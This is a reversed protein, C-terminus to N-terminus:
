LLFKGKRIVREGHKNITKVQNLCFDVLTNRQLM